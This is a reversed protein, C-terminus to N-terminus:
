VNRVSPLANNAIKRRQQRISIEVIVVFFAWVLAGIGFFIGIMGLTYGWTAQRAIQDNWFLMSRTPDGPDYLIPVTRTNIIYNYEPDPDRASSGVRTYGNVLNNRGHPIFSYEINVTCFGSRGCETAFERVFRAQVPVGRAVLASATVRDHIQPVIFPFTISLVVLLSYPYVILRSNLRSEPNRATFGIGIIALLMPVCCILAIQFAGGHVIDDIVHGRDFVSPLAIVCFVLMGIALVILIARRLSKKPGFLSTM